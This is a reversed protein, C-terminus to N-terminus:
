EAVPRAAGSSSPPVLEATSARVQRTIEDVAAVGGRQEVFRELVARAFLTNMLVARHIRSRAAPDILADEAVALLADKAWTQLVAGARRVARDVVAKEEASLRITIQREVTETM